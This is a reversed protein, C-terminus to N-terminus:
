ILTVGTLVLWTVGAWSLCLSGIIFVALLIAELNRAFWGPQQARYILELCLAATALLALATMRM